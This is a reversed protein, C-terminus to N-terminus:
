GPPHVFFAVFQWGRDAFGAATAVRASAENHPDHLYTPVAGDALVRRAAQAVLRRALGRGRAREHTGVALEHGYPDHWKIGVGALYHGQEDLAVLVEDGFPHLWPPVRPDLVPLWLGDDPGPTPATTWRFVARIVQGPAGLLHPLAATLDDLEIGAPVAAAVRPSLGVVAAGGPTVVGVVPSVRGDWAPLDRLPNGVVAVPRRPPWDGVWRELHTRLLDPVPELTADLAPQVGGITAAPAEARM